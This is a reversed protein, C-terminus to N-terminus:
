VEGQSQASQVPRALRARNARYTHLSLAAGAVVLAAVAAYALGPVAGFLAGGLLRQPLLTFGGAILLAQAYLMVMAGRHIAIRTRPDHRRSRIAAVGATLSILTYASLVHISGFGGPVITTIGFSSIATGAMLAVWARGLLRHRRDGKRALLVVLGLVVAALAMAVHLAIPPTVTGTV